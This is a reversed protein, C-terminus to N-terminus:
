QESGEGATAKRVMDVVDKPTVPTKIVFQQLEPVQTFIKEPIHQAIETIRTIRDEDIQGWDSSIAIDLINAGSVGARLAVEEDSGDHAAIADNAKRQAEAYEIELPTLVTSPDLGNATFLTHIFIVTEAYLHASHEEASWNDVTSESFFHPEGDVPM